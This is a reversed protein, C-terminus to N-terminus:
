EYAARRAMQRNIIFYTGGAIGLCGLFLLGAVPLGILLWLPLGRSAPSNQPRRGRPPSSPPPSDSVSPRPEIRGPYARALPKEALAVAEDPVAPGAALTLDPVIDFLKGCGSCRARTDLM